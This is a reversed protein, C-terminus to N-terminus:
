PRALLARNIEVIQDARVWGLRGSSTRIQLWDSKRNRVAVEAGDHLIFASQSEEFPGLRIVAEKAVVVAPHRAIQDLWLWGLWLGLAIALTGTWRTFPRLAERREAWFQGGALLSFWLWLAAATTVALENLSLWRAWRLWSTAAPQATKSRAFQLNTEIDPDRPALRQALKYHLIAQGTEGSKLRANALNFHLAASAPGSEMLKQYAAAAEAFKGQEYLKNAQDFQATANEARLRGGGALSSLLVLCLAAFAWAQRRRRAFDGRM